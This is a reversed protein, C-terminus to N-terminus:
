GRLPPNFPILGMKQSQDGWFFTWIIVGSSDRNHSLNQTSPEGIKLGAASKGRYENRHVHGLYNSAARRSAAAEAVGSMWISHNLCSLLINYLCQPLCLMGQAPMAHEITSVNLANLVGLDDHHYGDLM